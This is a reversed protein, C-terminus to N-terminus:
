GMFISAPNFNFLLFGLVAGGLLAPLVAVSVQGNILFTIALFVSSILSIGGALGDMNDLLNIANTIGVLWFITLVDNIWQYNGWPLHLGLFVLTSAAILQVVLKAYPKIRTADDILGTLFLLTVGGLIANPGKLN